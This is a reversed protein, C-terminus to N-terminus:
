ATVQVLLVPKVSLVVHYVFKIREMMMYDKWVIVILHILEQVIVAHKVTLNLLKALIM